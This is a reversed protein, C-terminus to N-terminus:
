GKNKFKCRNDEKEDVLANFANVLVNQFISSWEAISGLPLLLGEDVRDTVIPIERALSRLQFAVGDILSKARFRKRTEINRPDSFGSFLDNTARARRLWDALANRLEDLRTQVGREDVEVDGLQRIIDEIKAFQQRLEHQYALTSMGATALSGLLAVKRASRESETEFVNAANELDRKLLMYQKRPIQSEFKALVDDLKAVKPSEIERKRM